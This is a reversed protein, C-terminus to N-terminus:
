LNTIFLPIVCECPSSFPSINSNLQNRPPDTNAGPKDPPVYVAVVREGKNLLAELVKRGFAAQGILVIRM